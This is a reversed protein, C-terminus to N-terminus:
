HPATCGQCVAYRSFRRIVEEFGSLAAMTETQDRRPDNIQEFAALARLYYAYAIDKHGPHLQIFRDWIPSRTMTICGRISASVGGDFDAQTAWNSYPHQREVEEFLEAARKYSKRELQDYADNYLNGVPQETQKLADNSDGACAGLLPFCCALSCRPWAPM